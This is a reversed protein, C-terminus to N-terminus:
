RKMYKELEEALEETMALKKAFEPNEELTKLMAKLIAVLKPMAEKERKIVEFATKEELVMGCYYCYKADFPNQRNCRPCIKPELKSKEERKIEKTKIGEARLIAKEADRGSLHVYVSAMRSDKTWGMIIKLEQETVKSALNTGRTHRLMHPYVNKKIGAKEALRKLTKEFASITIRKYEKKWKTIFVYANPDDRLPHVNLWQRLYPESKILAITREGTKGTIRIKAGYETFEVDRIRLNLIEGARGGSDYTVMILAKVRPEKAANVLAIIEDETLIKDKLNNSKILRSTSPLKIWDVCKPYDKTGKVTKMIAKFDRVYNVITWESVEKEKKGKRVIIKGERLLKLWNEVDKKTVRKPDKVGTAKFFSYVVQYKRKITNWNTINRELLHKEIVECWKPPIRKKLYDVYNKAYMEEALVEM